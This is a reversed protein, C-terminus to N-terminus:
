FIVTSLRKIYKEQINKMDGIISGTKSIPSFFSDIHM